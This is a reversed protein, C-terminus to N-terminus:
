LQMAPVMWKNKKTQFRLSTSVYFFFVFDLSYIGVFFAEPRPLTTDGAEYLCRDRLSQILEADYIELLSLPTKNVAFHTRTFLQFWGFSRDGMTKQQFAMRLNRQSRQRTSLDFLFNM